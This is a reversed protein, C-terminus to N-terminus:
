CALGYALARGMRHLWGHQSMAVRQDCSKAWSAALQKGTPPVTAVLQFAPFANRWLWLVDEKLIASPITRLKASCTWSRSPAKWAVQTLPVLKSGFHVLTPSLAKSWWSQGSSTMLSSGWEWAPNPSVYQLVPKNSPRPGPHVQIQNLGRNTHLRKASKGRTLPIRGM